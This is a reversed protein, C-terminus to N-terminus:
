DIRRLGSNTELQAAIEADATEIVGADNSAITGQSGDGLMVGVSVAPGDGVFRFVQRGLRSGGRRRRVRGAGGGCNRCLRRSATGSGFRAGCASCIAVYIAGRPQGPQGNLYHHPPPGLRAHVHWGGDAVAYYHYRPPHRRCVRCQKAPRGPRTEFVLQCSECARLGSVEIRRAVFALYVDLHPVVQGIQPALGERMVSALKAKLEARRSARLRRTSVTGSNPWLIFDLGLWDFEALQSHVACAMAAQEDRDRQREPDATAMFSFSGPIGFIWRAFSEARLPSGGWCKGHEPHFSALQVTHPRTRDGWISLYEDETCDFQVDDFDPAAPKLPYSWGWPERLL